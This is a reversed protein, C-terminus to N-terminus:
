NYLQFPYIAELGVIKTLEDLAVRSERLLMPDKMDELTLHDRYHKNIWHDLQQFLTNNLFLGPHCQKIEEENLVIRLRLCAPGGGNQMSQRCDVYEVATIPNDEQLIREIVAQAKPIEKCEEPAILIMDKSPLTIIQSNFLYSQVAEELTLESAQVKIFVMPFSTKDKISQIVQETDEFALEHYLFVNENAVSIVDNHFVGADIATRNQKAILTKEPHLQHLRIIAQSAELTQRAPYRFKETKEPRFGSHGYVFLQIGPDSHQLTFRNHNAAGEDSLTKSPFLPPHITFYNPDFFIKKFLTHTFPAEQARHLHSSLNSITFHVRHDQSDTSPCVTAANATWMSSSSYSALFLDIANDFSKQLIDADTGTFGLSRLLPLNPREQPPLLAQKVGLDHLRKMKKLGQLAAAKPNSTLKANIMSAVNGYALGAYNHTPGVLGDFNVEFTKM